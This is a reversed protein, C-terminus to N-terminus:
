IEITNEQSSLLRDGSLPVTGDLLWYNQRVKLLGEQHNPSNHKVKLVLRNRAREREGIWGSLSASGGMEEVGDLYWSRGGFFNVRSRLRMRSHILTPNQFAYNVQWIISFRLHAPKIDEVVLRLDKLNPISLLHDILKITFRYEDPFVVVDVKAGDFAEAIDRIMEASVKGSGRMKSLVLSRRQAISKASQVPIRLDEEYRPLAWTASEPFYQDLQAEMRQGLEDLELSETSTLQEMEIFGSYYEPLYAQMLRNTNSM